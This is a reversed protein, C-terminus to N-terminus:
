SQQQEAHTADYRPVYEFTIPSDIYAERTWSTAPPGAFHNTQYLTGSFSVTLRNGVVGPPFDFAWHGAEVRYGWAIGVRGPIVGEADTAEAIEEDTLWWYMQLDHPASPLQGSPDPQDFGYGYVHVRRYMKRLRPEGFDLDEFVLEFRAGNAGRLRLGQRNLSTASSWVYTGRPTPLVVRNAYGGEPGANLWAKSQLDYRVSQVAHNDIHRQALLQVNDLDAWVQAFGRESFQGNPRWHPLPAMSISVDEITNTIGEVGPGMTVAWIRGKHITFLTGGFRAPVVGPDCGVTTSVPTVTFDTSDPNGRALLTENDGFILLGAPSSALATIQTSGSMQPTFYGNASALNTIGLGASYVVSRGETLTGITTMVRDGYGSTGGVLVVQAHPRSSSGSRPLSDSIGFLRGDHRVVTSDPKVRMLYGGVGDPLTEGIPHEHIDVNGPGLRSAALLVNPASSPLGEDATTRMYVMYVSASLGDSASIAVRLADENASADLTTLARRVGVGILGAATPLCRVVSILVSTDSEDDSQTLEGTSTLKSLSISWASSSDSGAQILGRDRVLFQYGGDAVSYTQSLEGLAGIQEYYAMSISDSDVSPTSQGQTTLLRYTYEPDSSGGGSSASRRFLMLGSNDWGVPHFNSGIQFFGDTPETGGFALLRGASRPLLGLMTRPAPVEPHADPVLQIGRGLPLHYTETHRPM